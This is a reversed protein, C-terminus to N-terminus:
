SRSHNALKRQPVGRHWLSCRANREEGRIREEGGMKKMSMGGILYNQKTVNPIRHM